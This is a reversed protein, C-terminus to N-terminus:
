PLFVPLVFTGADHALQLFRQSILPDGHRDGSTRIAVARLRRHDGSPYHQRLAAIMAAEDAMTGEDLRLRGDGDALLTLPLAAPTLVLRGTSGGPPALGTHIELPLDNTLFAVPTSLLAEHEDFLAILTRHEALKFSSVVRESGDAARLRLDGIRSGTYIFPLAPLARDSTRERVLCSADIRRLSGHDDQWEWEVRVPMGRPPLRRLADCTAGDRWGFALIFAAKLLHADDSDLRVLTEHLAGSRLTAIFALGEEPGEDVWRTGSLVVAHDRVVGIGPALWRPEPMPAVEISRPREPAPLSAWDLAGAASVAGAVLLIAIRHMCHDAPIM